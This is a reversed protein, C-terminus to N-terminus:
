RDGPGSWQVNGIETAAEQLLRVAERTGLEAAVAYAAAKVKM